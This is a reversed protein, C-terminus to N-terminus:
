ILQTTDPELATGLRAHVVDVGGENIHAPGCASVCVCVCVATIGCLAVLLASGVNGSLAWHGTCHIVQPPHHPFVTDATDDHQTLGM